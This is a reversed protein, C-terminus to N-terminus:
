EEEALMERARALLAERENLEPDELVVEVLRELLDGLWEGSPRGALELLDDGGVALDAVTLPAGAADLYEIRTMLESIDKPLQFSDTRRHAQRDAIVLDFLDAINEPGVRRVFRRVAADSWEPFYRLMHHRILNCARERLERPLKLRRLATLALEASLRDHGYFVFDRNKLLKTQPKGLDHLLAAWRVMPKEVPILDCTRLSHDYVDFEHFRNQTVGYCAALEPLCHDLLGTRRLLEFCVSPRTASMAKALEDGIREWAV